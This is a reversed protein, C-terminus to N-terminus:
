RFRLELIKDKDLAIDYKLDQHVYDAVFNWSKPYKITFHYNNANSGPEKQLFLRYVNESDKTYIKYASKYSFNAQTTSGAPTNMWFSLKTKGAETGIYHDIEKSRKQDMHPWFNGETAAFDTVESDNPLLIRMLNINTGDPWVGTGQHKRIITVNHTVEGKDSINIEDSVDEAINLSSKGGGINTSHSMFYDYNATSLKGSLNLQGLTNEIEPSGSYFIIHKASISNTLIKLVESRSKNDKMKAFTRNLVIPMMQALIKKPENEALAGARTFYNQEVEAQVTTLFNDSTISLGLDPFEVPGTLKLLSTILSTDIAIIGDLRQESELQYLEQVKGLSEPGDVAYNADRLFMKGGYLVDYEPPAAVNVKGEASKDLKYINTQFDIRKISSDKATIIAYSGIFGGSGRIEANNQLLLMIKKEGDVGSYWKLLPLLNNQIQALSQSLTAFSDIVKQQEQASVINSSVKNRKLSANLKDIQDSKEKIHRELVALDIKFDINTSDVMKQGSLSTATTEILEKTSTAIDLVEDISTILNEAGVIDSRYDILRLYKSDQGWAQLNLKIKEVEAKAKVSEDLAQDYEGAQLLTLSKNLHQQALDASSTLDAKVVYARGSALMLLAVLITAFLIRRGLSTYDIRKRSPKAPKHGFWFSESWSLHNEPKRPKRVRPKIDHIKKM